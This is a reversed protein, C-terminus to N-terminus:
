DWVVRDPQKPEPGKNANKAALQGSLKGANPNKPNTGRLLEGERRREAAKLLASRPDVPTDGGGGAGTGGLVQTTGIVQHGGRLTGTKSCFAGM